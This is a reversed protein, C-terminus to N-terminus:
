ATPYKGEVTGTHGRTQSTEVNTYDFTLTAGFKSGPEAATALDDCDWTVLFNGGNPIVTTNAVVPAGDYTATIVPNACTVGADPTLGGTLPLTVGVGNNNRFAIEVSNDTGGAIVANDLNQLPGPFQTREPLISSPNLVGFYALAGVALLVVLVAWGYTMLFEM